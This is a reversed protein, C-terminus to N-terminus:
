RVCWGKYPRGTFWDYKTCKYSNKAVFYGALAGLGGGVVAGGVSQTALGGVAAGAVGGILAGKTTKPSSYCGSLSGLALMGAVACAFIKTM